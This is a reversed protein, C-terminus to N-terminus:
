DRRRSSILAFGVPVLAITMIHIGKIFFSGWIAFIVLIAVLAKLATSLIPEFRSVLAIVICIAAAIGAVFPVFFSSIATGPSIHLVDQIAAVTDVMRSLIGDGSSSLFYPIFAISFCFLCAVSLNTVVTFSRLRTGM